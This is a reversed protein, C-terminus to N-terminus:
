SLINIESMLVDLVSDAPVKGIIEGKKFLIYEGDGGAIGIDAGKAEGPGNVACGMIAVTINKRIGTVRREIEQAVEIVNVRCRGCTPCSIVNVDEQLIGLSSLIKRGAMVENVPDSTLSVRITDGIGQSLLTGIGIASKITGSYLTGAETVGLHLPFDYTDHMLKYANITTMVDSSKLSIVIDEFNEDLLINIHKQASEVLANACPNGYKELIERELSGANIGIRIPISRERAARVVERTRDKSGINGPNIRIKDIGNNICELALRYDFHIDAVLPVNTRSKIEKVARAAEIDPIAFRVIDCGAAQLKSIQECTSEVNRTDTNTMSQVTINSDGGIYANGVKVKRMM